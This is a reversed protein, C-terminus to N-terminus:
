TQRMNGRVKQLMDMLKQQEAGELPSMINRVEKAYLPEVKELLNKGKETLKIINSRRDGEATTRTVFGAKEMRDVLSTINARNVLMMESLRAQTLGGGKPSQHGLMMMLNLQVDTLDFQSLFETAYKRICTATFYINLLAEHSKLTFPVNLNLEKELPLKENGKVLINNIYLSYM